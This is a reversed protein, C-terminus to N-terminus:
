MGGVVNEGIRNLSEYIHEQIYVVESTLSKLYTSLRQLIMMRLSFRISRWWRQICYVARRRIACVILPIEYQKRIFYARWCAQIKCAAANRKAVIEFV